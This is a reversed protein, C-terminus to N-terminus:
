TKLYLLIFYFCLPCWGGWGAQPNKDSSSQATVCSLAGEALQAGQVLFLLFESRNERGVDEEGLLHKVSCGGVAPAQSSVWPRLVPKVVSSCGGLCLQPPSPAARSAAGCWGGAGTQRDTWSLATSVALAPLWLLVWLHPWHLAAPPVSEGEGGWGSRM